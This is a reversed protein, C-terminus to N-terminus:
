FTEPQWKNLVEGAEEIAKIDDDNWTSVKLLKKKDEKDQDPLIGNKTTLVESSKPSM